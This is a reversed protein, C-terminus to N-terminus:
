KQHSILFSNFSPFYPHQVSGFYIKKKKKVKLSTKSLLIQMDIVCKSETENMGSCFGCFTGRWWDDRALFAQM